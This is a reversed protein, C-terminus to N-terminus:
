TRAEQKLRVKKDEEANLKGEKIIKDLDLDGNDRKIKVSVRNGSGRDLASASLM